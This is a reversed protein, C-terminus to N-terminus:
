NVGILTEASSLKVLFNGNTSSYGQQNGTPSPGMDLVVVAMNNRSADYILASRATITSNPWVPDTWTLAATTGILAVDAGQLVQGGATYGPAGIVEGQTTYAPTDPSLGADVTYLAIRFVDLIMQQLLALKFRLTLGPVNM